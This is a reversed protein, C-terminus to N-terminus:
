SSATRILTLWSFLASLQRSLGLVKVCRWLLPAANIDPFTIHFDSYLHIFRNLWASLAHNRHGVIDPVRQSLLSSSTTAESVLFDRVNPSLSELVGTYAYARLNAPLREAFSLYPLNGEEAMRSNSNALISAHLFARVKVLRQTSSSHASDLM